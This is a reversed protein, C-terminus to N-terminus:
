PATHQVDWHDRYEGLTRGAFGGAAASFLRELDEYLAEVSRASRFRPSGGPMLESSHLMFQVYDRGEDLATRLLRPLRRGNRGDPRLWVARPFLRDIAPALVPHRPFRRRAWEIRARQPQPFTTMPVELLDSSGSLRVDDLDLRYATSPYGTYDPGGSGTPDGPSSTWSVHPTVSCDVRYGHEALLRAYTADFGWRGARHSTIPVGFTDELKHTLMKIKAAMQCPPYETLYPLHRPDDKTLPPGPPTNWAHLHMGIEAVRRRIADAAFERFRACEVMEWTTVYTPRLGYTECLRQFRPLFRSNETTVTKPRAWLNDAESDITIIFSAREAMLPGGLWV